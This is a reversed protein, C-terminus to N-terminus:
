DCAGIGSGTVDVLRCIRGPECSDLQDIRCLKACEDGSSTKVCIFGGACQTGDSCPSGQVGGGAFFCRTNYIGPHCPDQAQPPIPYCAQAPPCTTSPPAFPDCEIMSPTAAVDPCVMEHFVPYGDEGDASDRPADVAQDIKADRSADRKVGADNGVPDITVSGGCAALLLVFASAAAFKMDSFEHLGREPPQKTCELARSGWPSTQRGLTPLQAGASTASPSMTRRADRAEGRLAMRNPMSGRATATSTRWRAPAVRGAGSRVRRFTGRCVCNPM